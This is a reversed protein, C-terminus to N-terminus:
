GLLALCRALFPCADIKYTVPKVQGVIEQVRSGHEVLEAGTGPIAILRFTPSRQEMQTANAAHTLMLKQGEM